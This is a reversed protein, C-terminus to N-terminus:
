IGSEDKILSKKTLLFRTTHYSIGQTEGKYFAKFLFTYNGLESPLNITFTKIDTANDVVHYLQLSRNQDYIYVEIQSPFPLIVDRGIDVSIELRMNPNLILTSLVIEDSDYPHKPHMRADCDLYNYDWCYQSPHAYATSKTRPEFILLSRPLPKTEMITNPANKIEEEIELQRKDRLEDLIATNPYSRDFTLERESCGALILLITILLYRSIKKM